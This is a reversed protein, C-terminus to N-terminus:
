RALRRAASELAAAARSAAALSDHRLPKQELLQLATELEMEADTALVSIEADDPRESRRLAELERRIGSAFKKGAVEVPAGRLDDKAVGVVFRLNRASGECADADLARPGTAQEATLRELLSDSTSVQSPGANPPQAIPAPADRLDTEAGPPGGEIELLSTFTARSLLEQAAAARRPRSRRAKRPAAGASVTSFVMVSATLAALLTKM